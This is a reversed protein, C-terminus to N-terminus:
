LLSSNHVSEICRPCDLLRNINEILEEAQWIKSSKNFVGKQVDIVLLATKM